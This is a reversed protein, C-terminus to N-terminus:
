EIGEFPIKLDDISCNDLEAWHTVGFQIYALKSTSWDLLIPMRFGDFVCEIANIRKGKYWAGKRPFAPATVFLYVDKQLAPKQRRIDYCVPVNRSSVTKVIDKSLILHELEDLIKGIDRATNANWLKRVFEKKVEPSMKTLANAM